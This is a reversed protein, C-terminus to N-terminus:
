IINGFRLNRREAKIRPNGGREEKVLSTDVDQSMGARLGMAGADRHM